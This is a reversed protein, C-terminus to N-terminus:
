HNDRKFMLLNSTYTLIEPKLIKECYTNYVNNKSNLEQQLSTHLVCHHPAGHIGEGQDLLNYTIEIETKM